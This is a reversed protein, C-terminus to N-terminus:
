VAWRLRRSLTYDEWPGKTILLAM